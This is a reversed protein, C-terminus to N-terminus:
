KDKKFTNDVTQSLEKKRKTTLISEFKDANYAELIEKEYNELKLKSM